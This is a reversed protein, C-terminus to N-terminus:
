AASKRQNLRKSLMIRYVTLFVVVLTTGFYMARV